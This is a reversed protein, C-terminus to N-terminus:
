SLLWEQYFKVESSACHLYGTPSHVHWGCNPYFDEAYRYSPCNGLDELNFHPIDLSSLLQKEYVGGKYAIVTRSKTKSNQYLARIMIPVVNQNITFHGRRPHFSLGHVNNRLYYLTRRVKPDNLPLHGPNVQLNVPESSSLSIFGIERVRQLSGHCFMELDLVGCIHHIMDSVDEETEIVDSDESDISNDDFTLCSCRCYGYGRCLKCAMGDVQCQPIPFCKKSCCFQDEEMSETCSDFCSQLLMQFKLM